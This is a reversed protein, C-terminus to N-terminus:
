IEAQNSKFKSSRHSQVHVINWSGLPVAWQLSCFSSVSLQGDGQVEENAFMPCDQVSAQGQLRMARKHIPQCGQPCSPCAEEEVEHELRRGVQFHRKEEVASGM